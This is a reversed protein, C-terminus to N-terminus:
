VAALSPAHRLASAGPLAASQMDSVKTLDSEAAPATRFRDPRPTMRGSPCIRGSALGNKSLKSVSTHKQQPGQPAIVKRTALGLLLHRISSRHSTRVTRPSTALNAQIRLVKALAGDLKARRQQEAEWLHVASQSIARCLQPEYQGVLVFDHKLVVSFCERDCSDM